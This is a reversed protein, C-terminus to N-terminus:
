LYLIEGKLVGDELWIQGCSAYNRGRPQVPSGPNFLLVGKLYEHIPFHTHGFIVGSVPYHASSFAEYAQKSAERSRGRGHMLGIYIGGASVIKMNGLKQYLRMSDMNGAVAEVPAIAKLEDIIKEEELDGAHLILDAGDLLRFIRPPLSRARAPVHTDSIVGIWGGASLNHEVVVFNDM